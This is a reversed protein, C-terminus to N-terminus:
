ATSFVEFGRAHYTEYAKKIRPLEERGIFWFHVLVVKGRFPKWNFLQGDITTGTIELANGVLRSRRLQGEIQAGLKRLIYRYKDSVGAFERCFEVAADPGPSLYLYGATLRLM